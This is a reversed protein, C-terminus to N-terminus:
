QGGHGAAIGGPRSDDIDAAALLGHLNANRGALRLVDMGLDSEDVHHHAIRFDGVDHRQSVM